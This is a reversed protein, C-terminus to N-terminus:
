AACFVDHVQESATFSVGCSNPVDVPIVLQARAVAAGRSGVMALDGIAHNAHTRTAPVDVAGVPSVHKLPLTRTALTSRGPELVLLTCARGAAMPLTAPSM